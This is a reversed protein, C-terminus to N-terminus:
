NEYEEGIFEITVSKVREGSGDKITEIFVPYEGDGYGSSIALGIGPGLPASCNQKPNFQGSKELVKCFEDWDTVRNSADDGMVYCPDGVWILGADVFVTGIQKRM